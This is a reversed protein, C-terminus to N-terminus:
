GQLAGAAGLLSCSSSCTCSEIRSLRQLHPGCLALTASLVLPSRLSTPVSGRDTQREHCLALHAFLRQMKLMKCQKRTANKGKVIYRVEFYAGTPCGYSHPKSPSLTPVEFDTHGGTRAKPTTGQPSTACLQM